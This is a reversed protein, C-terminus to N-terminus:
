RRSVQRAFSSLNMDFIYLNGTRPYVAVPKVSQMIKEVIGPPVVYCNNNNFLIDQRGVPGPPGAVTSVSNLARTVDAAQWRCGIAGAQGHMLTDAYGYRRIREGGASYFSKDEPNGSPTVDDPLDDPSIVNAVAGSDMACSVTKELVAMVEEGSEDDSETIPGLLESCDDVPTTALANAGINCRAITADM